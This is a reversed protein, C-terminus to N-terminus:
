LLNHYIIYKNNQLLKDHTTSKIVNVFVFKQFIKFCSTMSHLDNKYRM